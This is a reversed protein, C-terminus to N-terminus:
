VKDLFDKTGQILRKLGEELTARPTAVNLRFFNEGGAGFSSGKSIWIKAHTYLYQWLDDGNFSCANLHDISSLNAKLAQNKAGKVNRAATKLNENKAKLLANCDIWLMYTAESRVIRLASNAELIRTAYDKNASVYANMAKLWDKSENFAAITATQAFSAPEKIEDTNFGRTIKARLREDSTFICSAHLSALNFAKSASIATIARSNISAFPTYPSSTIDCHIEDSILLVAYKECLAAIKQLEKKSWVKGIPNHPNCLIMLTTNPSALKAELDKFDISYAGNEYVLENEVVTRGNDRICNYFVGYVPPQILVGEGISTLRRVMSSIAPVVGTCFALWKRDLKLKHWELWWKEISQYFEDSVVEYGFVGKELKKQMANQIQPAIKFDMDAVWMPLIKAGKQWKLSNSNLRNLQTDFDYTASTERKSDKSNKKNSHNKM